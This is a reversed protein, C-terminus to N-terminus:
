HHKEYLGEFSATKKFSAMGKLLRLSDKRQRERLEDDYFEEVLNKSGSESVETRHGGELIDVNRGYNSFENSGDEHEVGKNVNKESGGGKVKENSGTKSSGGKKVKKNSGNKKQLGGKRAKKVADRINVEKHNASENMEKNNGKDKESTDKECVSTKRGFLPIGFNKAFRDKLNQILRRQRLSSESDPRAVHPTPPGQSPSTLYYSPVSIAPESLTLSKNLDFAPCACAGQCGNTCYTTVLERRKSKNSQPDPTIEQSHFPLVSYEKREKFIKKAKPLTQAKLM